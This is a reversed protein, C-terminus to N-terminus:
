AAKAALFSDFERDLEITMNEATQIASLAVMYFESDNEDNLDIDSIASLDTKLKYAMKSLHMFKFAPYQNGENEYVDMLGESLKKSQELTMLCHARIRETQVTLHADLAIKTITLISNIQDAKISLENTKANLQITNM